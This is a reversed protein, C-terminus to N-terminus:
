YDTYSNCISVGSGLNNNLAMTADYWDETEGDVIQRFAYTIENIDRSATIITILKVEVTSDYYSGVYNHVEYRSENNIIVERKIHRGEVDKNFTQTNKNCLYGLNEKSAFTLPIYKNSKDIIYVVTDDGRNINYVEGNIRDILNQSSSGEEKSCSIFVVLSLLLLIKKM